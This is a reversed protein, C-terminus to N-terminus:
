SYLFVAQVKPLSYTKLPPTDKNIINLCKRGKQQAATFVANISGVM